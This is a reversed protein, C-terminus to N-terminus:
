KIRQLTSFLTSITIPENKMGNSNQPLDDNLLSPSRMAKMLKDLVVQMDPTVKCDELVVIDKNSEYQPHLVIVEM